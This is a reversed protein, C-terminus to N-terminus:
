WLRIGACVAVHVHIYWYPVQFGRREDTLDFFLKILFHPLVLLINYFQELLLVNYISLIGIAKLWASKPGARGNSM